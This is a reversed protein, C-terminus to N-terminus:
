LLLYTQIAATQFWLLAAALLGIPRVSRLVLKGHTDSFGRSAILRNAAGRLVFRVTHDLILGLLVIATYTRNQAPELFSLSAVAIVLLTSIPKLIYIQQRKKLMEARILFFATIILIPIPYLAPKM